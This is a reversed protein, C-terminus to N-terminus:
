EDDKRVTRLEDRAAHRRHAQPLNSVGLWPFLWPGQQVRSAAKSQRTVPQDADEARASALLPNGYAPQALSGAQLGRDRAAYYYGRAYYSVARDHNGGALRYAGALYRVAYTLNTDPDLLGTASGTYGVGRATAPKIQMLGMASGKGVLRSNYRSERLIVRHVLAEPVGNAAAHAAIRANLASRSADESAAQAFAPLVLVCVALIPPFFRTM